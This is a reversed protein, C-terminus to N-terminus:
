EPILDPRVHHRGAIAAHYQSADIAGDREKVSIPEYQRAAYIASVVDLQNKAEAARYLIELVETPLMVRSHQPIHFMYGNIGVIKKEPSIYPYRKCFKGTSEDRVTGSFYAEMASLQHAFHTGQDIASIRTQQQRLKELREYEMDEDYEVAREMVGQNRLKIIEADTMGLRIAMGEDFLPKNDRLEPPLEADLMQANGPFLEDKMEQKSVTEGDIEFAPEQGDIIPATSIRDRSDRRAPM